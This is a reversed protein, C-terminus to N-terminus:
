GAAPTALLTHLVPLNYCLTKGSATSTVIVVNEGRLVSQVAQAQHTYLQPINQQNLAARLRADLEPPWAGYRAPRAPLREWAAVNEMFYKDLRLRHLTQV